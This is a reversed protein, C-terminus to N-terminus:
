RRPTASGYDPKMEFKSGREVCPPSGSRNAESVTVLPDTWTGSIAFGVLNPPIHLVCGRYKAQYASIGAPTLKITVREPVNIRAGQSCQLSDLEAAAVVSSTGSSCAVAGTAQVGATMSLFGLTGVLVLVIGAGLGVLTLRFRSRTSQYRALWEVAEITRDVRSLADKLQTLEREIVDSNEERNEADELLQSLCDQVQQAVEM